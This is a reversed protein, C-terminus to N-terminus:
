LVKKSCELECCHSVCAIMRGTRNGVAAGDGKVNRVESQARVRVVM